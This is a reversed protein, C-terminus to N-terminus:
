HPPLRRVMRTRHLTDERFGALETLPYFHALLNQKGSFALLAHSPSSDSMECLFHSSHSMIGVNVLGTHINQVCINWIMKYVIQVTKDM